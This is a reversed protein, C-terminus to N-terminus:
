ALEGLLENLLETSSLHVWIGDRLESSTVGARMALAVLNVVEQSDVGHYAFGLVQDTDADVVAKAIGRTEGVTKPRPMMALKAVPKAAVKINLGQERAAKETLGVQSFPPTLFTTTPVAVRDARSRGGDGLLQAAVIRYDDLSIYTFQPGGNIDGVAWVNEASTRLEDDVAIFGKDGVVIGAAELGRPAMPVRGTAFLVADAEFVGGTTVVATETVETVEVGEVVTIGSDALVGLVSARVDDDERGLVRGRNLVTVESGFGAFMQAFELGVAGAGVVVLRAPLADIHQISISTHVHPLDGGPVGAPRPASGTNIVVAAAEIELREGEAEVAVRRPGVFEAEGMVVTVKGELMDRNAANLKDVLADRNRLAEALYTEPDDQPTREAASHVLAKTPICAVNICAGGAMGPDREVLVVRRGAAAAKGALTKGGKGWGIVLLDAPLTHTM